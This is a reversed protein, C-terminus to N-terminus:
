NRRPRRPRQFRLRGIEDYISVYDAQGSELLLWAREKAPSLKGLWKQTTQNGGKTCVIEYAM